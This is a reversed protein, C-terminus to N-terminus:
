IRMRRPVFFQSRHPHSLLSIRGAGAVSIFAPGPIGLRPEGDGVPTFGSCAGFWGLAGGARDGREPVSVRAGPSPPHELSPSVEGIKWRSGPGPVERCPQGAARDARRRLAPCCSGKLAGRCGRRVGAATRGPGAGRPGAPPGRGVAPVSGQGPSGCSM